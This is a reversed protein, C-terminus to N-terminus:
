ESNKAANQIFFVCNQIEMSLTGDISTYKYRDM